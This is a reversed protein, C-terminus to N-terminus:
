EDLVDADDQETDARGHRRVGQAVVDDRRDREHGGEVVREVVGHELALQEEARAGQEIGRTRAVHLLHATQEAAHRDRGDAEEDTGKGGRGDGGSLPKTESHNM